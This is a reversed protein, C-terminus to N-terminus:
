GADTQQILRTCDGNKRLERAAMLRAERTSEIEQKLKYEWRKRRIKETPVPTRDFQYVDKTRVDIWLGYTSSLLKEAHRNDLSEALLKAREDHLLLYDDRTVLAIADSNKRDFKVWDNSYRVRKWGDPWRTLLTDKFLYKAVYRSVAEVSKVQSLDYQEGLGASIVRAQLWDSRWRENKVQQRQGDITKWEDCERWEADPPMWNTLIHSHPHGRKQRETVAVYSFKVGARRAKMRIATLFRNTWKLYGEEADQLSLDSGRCTITIFWLGNPAYKEIERCGEVIRGYNKRAIDPGCRPCDWHHCNGQIVTYVGDGAPIALLPANYACQAHFDAKNPQSEDNLGADFMTSTQSTSLQDLSVAATM